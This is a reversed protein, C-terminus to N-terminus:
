ESAEREARGGGEDSLLARSRLDFWYGTPISHLVAGTVMM